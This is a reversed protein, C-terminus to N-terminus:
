VHARGIKPKMIGDPGHASEIDMVHLFGTRELGIDIFASQMGPLVRAVRGLYVNGVFGRSVQRELHIEQLIGDVLIAVRTERPSYNILVEEM